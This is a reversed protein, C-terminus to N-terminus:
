TLSIMTGNTPATTLTTSSVTVTATSLPRNASMVKRLQPITIWSIPIRIIRVTTAHTESTTVTETPRILTRLTPATTSITSDETVTATLLPRNAYTVKRLLLITIWSIPTPTILATTVLMVSTTATETPRILTRLTPATTSITSDETVTATSLPRNVHTVKHLRLITIWSIPTPTILATTALM